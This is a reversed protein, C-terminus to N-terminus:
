SKILKVGAPKKMNITVSKKNRNVCLYYCSETGIFPPGWIRTDDGVGPKEVKIIDAGMDGLIMTCYPGALIRSLDLVKIGKLPADSHTANHAVREQSKETSVSVSRRSNKGSFLKIWQQSQLFCRQITKMNAIAM